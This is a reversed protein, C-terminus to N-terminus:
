SLRQEGPQLGTLKCVRDRPGAGLWGKPRAKPLVLAKTCGLHQISLLNSAGILEILQCSRQGLRLELDRAKHDIGDILDHMARHQALASDCALDIAPALFGLSAARALLAETSEGGPRPLAPRRARYAAAPATPHRDTRRCAAGTDGLDAAAQPRDRLRQRERGLTATSVAAAVRISSPGPIFRRRIRDRSSYM